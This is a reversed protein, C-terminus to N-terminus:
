IEKPKPVNLYVIIIGITMMVLLLFSFVFTGIISSSIKLGFCELNWSSTSIQTSDDMKNDNDDTINEKDDSLLESIKDIEITTQQENSQISNHISIMEIENM